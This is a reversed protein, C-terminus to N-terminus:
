ESCPETLLNDRKRVPTLPSPKEHDVAPQAGEFQVSEFTTFYIRIPEGAPNFKHRDPVFHFLSLCGPIRPGKLWLRVPTSFSIM